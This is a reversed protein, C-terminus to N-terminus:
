LTMNGYADVAFAKGNFKADGNEDVVISYTAANAKEAAKNAADTASEMDSKTASLDIQLKWYATDTLEVGAPVDQLAFYVRSGDTSMVTDKITYAQTPDHKGKPEFILNTLLRAM